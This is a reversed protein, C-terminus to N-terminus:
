VIQRGAQRGKDAQTDAHSSTDAQRGAQTERDAHRGQPLWGTYAQSGTDPQM